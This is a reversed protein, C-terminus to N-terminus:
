TRSTVSWPSCITGQGDDNFDGCMRGQVTVTTGTRAIGSISCANVNYCLRRGVQTFGRFAAVEVYRSAFSGHLLGFSSLRYAKAHATFSANALEIGGHGVWNQGGFTTSYTVSKGVGWQTNAAAQQPLVLAVLIGVMTLLLTIRRRPATRRTRTADHSTM